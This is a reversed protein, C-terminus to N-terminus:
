PHHYGIFVLSLNNVLITFYNTKEGGGTGDMIDSIIM